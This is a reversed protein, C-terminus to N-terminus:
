EHHNWDKSSLYQRLETKLEPHRLAYEINAILFGLKNGTDYRQGNLFAGHLGEKQALEVMGDTLQIEGNKGPKTNKLYDFIKGSFVYRGPLALHTPAEQLSPKEIVNKIQYNGNPLPSGDIIGYKSVDKEDVKMIAVTSVSSEEYHKILSQTATPQDPSNYVLEDGLLLAFPQDGIAPEACYVAHGLGLPKKQRISIINCM